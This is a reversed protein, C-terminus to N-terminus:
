IGLHGLDRERVAPRCAPQQTLPQGIEGGFSRHYQCQRTATDRDRHLDRRPQVGGHVDQHGPLDPVRWLRLQAHAGDGFVALRDVVRAHEAREPQRGSVHCGHRFLFPCFNLPPDAQVPSVPGQRLHGRPAHHEDVVPHGRPHRRTGPQSRKTGGPRAPNDQGDGDRRDACRLGHV